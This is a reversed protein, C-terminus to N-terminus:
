PHLKDLEKLLRANDPVGKDIFRVIGERDILYTLRGRGYLSRIAGDSDDILPFTIGHEEAFARHTELTDGSVGLV